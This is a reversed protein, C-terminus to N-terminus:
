KKSNKENYKQVMGAKEALSGPKATKYYETSSMIEKIKKDNAEKKEQLTQVRQRSKEISDIKKTSATANKAIKEPPLGKKARKKNLREVNKRVIEDVGQKDYYHNVVLQIITQFVATAIWYLGLGAPVSFAIFASMIPMFINMMKMSAAAPNDEDLQNGNQGQSIRVSIYQSIGALIPILIAANLAFTPVQSVNITLFTNMETIKQQNEAIINAYAPFLSKLSEWQEGTFSNMATVASDINTWDTNVGVKAFNEAMIDAYGSVSMIGDNNNGSLIIVLLNKLQGVYMPINQIVRYLAMLIPFQILLQVCGGMQSTGYKEYVAKTEAQMKLMAEQDDRKDKYKEQIKKVEPAIISNLKMMKSQKVTLPLMLVKVLLTFIIIAIAINGLGIAHLGTFLVDLIEGLVWAIPNIIANYISGM